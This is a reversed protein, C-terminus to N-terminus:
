IKIQRFLNINKTILKKARWFIRLKEIITDAYKFHVKVSEIRQKLSNASSVNEGTNQNFVATINVPYFTHKKGNNKKNSVIAMNLEYDMCYKNNENFQFKDFIAKKYYFAEGSAIPSLKILNRKTVDKSAADNFSYDCGIHYNNFYIVDFNPSLDIYYKANELFNKHLIDDCGLFGIIDGSIHKLAINRSNSIGYDYEKIWKILKPFKKQYSSIIKHSDDTSKADIIVLEKEAYNQILFSTIAEELYKAGNFVSIIISIKM